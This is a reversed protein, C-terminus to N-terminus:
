QESDNRLDKDVLPTRHTTINYYILAEHWIKNVKLVRFGRIHHAGSNINKKLDLRKDSFIMIAFPM